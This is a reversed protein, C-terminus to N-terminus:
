PVSSRVSSRTRYPLVFGREPSSIGRRARSDLPHSSAQGRDGPRARTPTQEHRVTRIPTGNVQESIATLVVDEVMAAGSYLGWFIEGTAEDLEGNTAVLKGPLSVDFTLPVLAAPLRGSQARDRIEGMSATTIAAGSLRIAAAQREAPALRSGFQEQLRRDAAARLRLRVRRECLDPHVTAEWLLPEGPGFSIQWLDALLGKGLARAVDEGTLGSPLVAQIVALLHRDPEVFEQPRPGRWHLVERYEWRGASLQRVTVENVLRGEGSTDDGDRITLDHQLGEDPLLIRRATYQTSNGLRARSVFWPKEAPLVFREALEADSAAHFKLTRGWSGDTGVYTSVSSRVCGSSVAAFAVLCFLAGRMQAKGGRRSGGDHM